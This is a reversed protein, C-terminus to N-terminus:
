QPPDFMRAQGRILTAQFPGTDLSTANDAVGFAIAAGRYMQREGIAVGVAARAAGLSEVWVELTDRVEFNYTEEPGALALCAAPGVRAQLDDTLGVDAGAFGRLLPAVSGQLFRSYRADTGFPELAAFEPLLFWFVLDFASAEDAEIVGAGVVQEMSCLDSAAQDLQGRQELTTDPNLAIFDLHLVQSV